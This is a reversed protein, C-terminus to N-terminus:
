SPLSSTSRARPTSAPWATNERGSPFSFPFSLARGGGSPHGCPPPGPRGAQKLQRGGQGVAAQVGPAAVRDARRAPLAPAPVDQLQLLGSQRRDGRGQGRRRGAAQAGQDGALLQRPRRRRLEHDLRQALAGHGRARPLLRDQRARHV